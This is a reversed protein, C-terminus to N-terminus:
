CYRKQCGMADITIICGKVLLMDLLQSIAIIENSKSSTKLQGLILSNNSIWANVIHIESHYQVSEISYEKM